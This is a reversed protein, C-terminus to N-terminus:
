EFSPRLVDYLWIRAAAWDRKVTPESIGLSQAIERATLGGFFKLTVIETQRPDLRELENLANELADLSLTKTESAGDGPALTLLTRGGGRRDAQRRRYRQVLIRRMIRAAMSYFHARSKWDVRDVDVLQMYAEAVLETPQLTAGHDRNIQQRALRQLEAYVVPVMDDLAGEDGSQWRRLMLTIARDPNQNL